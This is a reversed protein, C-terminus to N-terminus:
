DEGGAGGGGGESMQHFGRRVDLPDGDFKRYVFSCKGQEQLLLKRPKVGIGAQGKAVERV